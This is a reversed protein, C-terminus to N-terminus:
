WAGILQALNQPRLGSTSYMEQIVWVLAGGAREFAIPSSEVEDYGAAQIRLIGPPLTLSDAVRAVGDLAAQAFEIPLGPVLPHGLLSKCSRLAGQTLDGTSGVEFVVGSGGPHFQGGVLARPVLGSASRVVEVMASVERTATPGVAVTTSWRLWERSEFVASPDVDSVAIRWTGSREIAPM